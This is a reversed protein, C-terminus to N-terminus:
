RVRRTVLGQRALASVFSEADSRARERGVGYSMAVEDSIFDISRGAALGTWIRAGVRDCTFVQGTNTHFLTVGNEHASARVGAAIRLADGAGASRFIRAFLGEPVLQPM